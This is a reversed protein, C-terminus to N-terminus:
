CTGLTSLSLICLCCCRFFFVPLLFLAIGDQKEEAPKKRKKMNSRTQNRGKRRTQKSKKNGGKENRGSRTMLEWAVLMGGARADAVSCGIASQIMRRWILGSQNVVRPVHILLLLFPHILPVQTSKCQTM